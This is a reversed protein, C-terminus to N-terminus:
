TATGRPGFLVIAAGLICLASGIMDSLRPATREVIALWLLSSVIYVGGYAAYARGAYAADVRTLVLAFALLSLGGPVLWWVSRGLRLWMWAAYCGAIELAAALVFWLVNLMARSEVDTVTRRRM